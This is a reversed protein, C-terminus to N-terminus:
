LLYVGSELRVVENDGVKIYQYVPEDFSAYREVAYTNTDVAEICNSVSNCVILKDDTASLACPRSFVGDRKSGIRLEERMTRANYKLITDGDPFSVWVSRGICVAGLPGFDKYNLKGSWVPDVNENFVWAEGTPYICLTRNDPLPTVRYNIFDRIQEVYRNFHEGFKGRLYIDRMAQTLSHDSFSYYKYSVVAKDDMNQETVVIVIGNPVELIQAAREDYLKVM